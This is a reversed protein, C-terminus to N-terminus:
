EKQFVVSLNNAPMHITSYHRLNHKEAENIVEELHRVGWDPNQSRLSEDFSANSIATHEGNEKFPGYLYLIGEPPLIRGAGAMLGCCTAWPSIHIMNINVIARIPNAELDIAQLPAARTGEDPTQEVPWQSERADLAIAGCLSECPYCDRWADISARAIPNPDSPIWWRPAVHSAFFIAHEGTGSAIELVTGSDPLVQQLVQLIVHKNRETAPAYQRADNRSDPM